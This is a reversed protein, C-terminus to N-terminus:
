YVSLPYFITYCYVFCLNILWFKLADLRPVLAELNGYNGFLSYVHSIYDHLTPCFTLSSSKNVVIDLLVYKTVQLICVAAGHLHKSRSAVFVTKCSEQSNSNM